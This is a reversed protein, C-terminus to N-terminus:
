CSVCSDGSLNMRSWALSAPSFCSSCCLLLIDGSLHLSNLLLDRQFLVQLIIVKCEEHAVFVGLVVCVRTWLQDWSRKEVHGFGQSVQLESDSLLLLQDLVSRHNQVRVSCVGTERHRIIQGTHSGLAAPSWWHPPTRRRGWLYSVCRYEYLCTQQSVTGMSEQQVPQHHWCGQYVYRGILPTESQLPM